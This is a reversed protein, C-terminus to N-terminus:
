SLHIRRPRSFFASVSLRLKGNVLHVEEPLDTGFPINGTRRLRSAPMDVYGDRLAIVTM